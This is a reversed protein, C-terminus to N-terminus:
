RAADLAASLQAGDAEGRWASELAAQLGRGLAPGPSVGAAQLRHGDISSRQFRGTREWWAALPAWDPALGDVVAARIPAPQTALARGLVVPDPPGPLAALTRAVQDPGDVWLARRAGGGPVLRDRDRRAARNDIQSALCLWGGDALDYPEGGRALHAPRTTHEHRDLAATARPGLESHVDQLWGWAAVSGFLQAARGDALCRQVEQGLREDGLARHAGAARAQDAGHRTEPSPVLGLRAGWRAARWVRTPDDIFSRPHQIRLVGAALDARGGGPDVLAGSGLDLAMALVTFDRRALDDALSGPAVQPLAAPGAYTERRATVLDVPEGDATTWTATRFAAHVLVRGGWAQALATALAPADGVVVVDLDKVPRDQLLDVIAGGVLCAQLGRAGALGAIRDLIVRRPGLADLLM